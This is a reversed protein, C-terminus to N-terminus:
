SFILLVCTGQSRPPLPLSLWSFSHPGLPNSTGWLIHKVSLLCSFDKLPPPHPCDHGIGVEQSGSVTVLPLLPDRLCIVFAGSFSVQAQLALHSSHPIQLTGKWPCVSCHYAHPFQLFGPTSFGQETGREQRGEEM